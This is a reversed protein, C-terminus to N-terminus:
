QDKLWLHSGTKLTANPEVVLTAENTWGVATWRTGTVILSSGNQITLTGYPVGGVGITLLGTTRSGDHSEPVQSDMTPNPDNVVLCNASSTSGEFIAEDGVYFPFFGADWNSDDSWLGTDDGNTWKVQAFSATTLCTAFVLLLLKKM